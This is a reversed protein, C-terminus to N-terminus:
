GIDVNADVYEQRLQSYAESGVAFYVLDLFTRAWESSHGCKNGAVVHAVEHLVTRTNRMTSAIKIVGMRDKHYSGAVSQKQMNNAPAEIRVIHSYRQEWWDSATLSDVYDQVETASGFEHWKPVKQEARYANKQQDSMTGSLPM